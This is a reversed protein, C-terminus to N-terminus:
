ILSGGMNKRFEDIESAYDIVNAPAMFYSFGDAWITTCERRTYTTRVLAFSREPRARFDDLCALLIQAEAPLAYPGSHPRMKRKIAEDRSIYLPELDDM